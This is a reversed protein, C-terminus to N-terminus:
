LQVLSAGRVQTLTISVFAFRTGYMSPIEYVIYVCYPLYKGVHPLLILKEAVAAISPHFAPPSNPSFQPLINESGSTKQADSSFLVYSQCLHLMSFPVCINKSRSSPVWKVRSNEKENVDEGNSETEILEHPLFAQCTCTLPCLSSLIKSIRRLYNGAPDYPRVYEFFTARPIFLCVIKFSIEQEQRTM